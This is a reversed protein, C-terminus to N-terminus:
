YEQCIRCAHCQHGCHLTQAFFEETIEIPELVSAPGGGIENPALPKRNIYADLVRLYNEPDRLTVRGALKLEDYIGDYLHLHQPLVWAGTLRMWPFEQLLNNCLSHPHGINSGMEYFHQVRFPCNPLCAENVILRISGSFAERLANLAPLDRMIRSAPVLTDFIDQLMVVQNPQSIDMLVSANLSLEPLSERIHQALLLDSVTVSGVGFEGTLKKLVEIIQPALEDVPRPLIIPNVLVSLPFPSRRLFGQLHETSQLPRGSGLIDGPLPLYIEKISHDYNEAIQEWFAFPQDVYPIIWRTNVLSSSSIVDSDTHEPQISLDLSLPESKDIWISSSPLDFTFSDYRLRRM